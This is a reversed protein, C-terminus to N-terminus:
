DFLKGTLEHYAAKYRTMTSAVVESSMEVGEKGKLDNQVLWDVIFILSCVRDKEASSVVCSSSITRTRAEALKGLAPVGFDVVTQHSSRTVCSWLLRHPRIMLVLSLNLTRLSSVEVILM